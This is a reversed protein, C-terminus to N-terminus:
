PAQCGLRKANGLLDRLLWINVGGKGDKGDGQPKGCDTVDNMDADSCSRHFRSRVKTGDTYTVILDVDNTAGAAAFGDFVFTEGDVIPGTSGVLDAAGPSALNAVATRYWDVGAISKGGALASSFELGIGDIPKLADCSAAAVVPPAPTLVLDCGSEFSLSGSYSATSADARSEFEFVVEVGKGPDITRKKVDAVLDATTLAAPSAKKGKFVEDKGVKVKTLLGNVAQPWSLAVRTLTVKTTGRNTVKWKLQRDKLTIQGAEIACAAPGAPVCPVPTLANTGTKSPSNHSTVVEVSAFGGGAAFAAASITMEYEIPFIWGQLAPTSVNSGADAPPSNVLLNVGGVTCNGGTCRGNLNRALSTNWALLHGATGAVLGGDGGALGLSAYGSPTGSKASIYDMVFNMAISGNASRFLFQAKDSGVLDNFTHTRSWGVTNIGYSNDNFTTSQSWKVHVHGSGDVGWTLVGAPGFAAAASDSPCLARQHAYGFDITRDEGSLGSLVVTAPHHNSDVARDAGAMAATRGFGAPLTAEDVVVVYTGACLGTFLYRGSADTVAEALETDDGDKLVVRVGPVGPESPDQLGNLNQDYWVLDGIRGGCQPACFGFDASLDAATGTTTFIFPSMRSAGAAGTPTLGALVDQALPIEVTVGMSPTLNAFGYRGAQDTTVTAVVPGEPGGARLTVLVGGIGPEGADQIGDCNLDRWVVDGVVTAGRVGFDISDDHQNDSLVVTSGNANSDAARNTGTEVPSMTAGPPLDVWVTYTGPCLGEFRYRGTSDTVAMAADPAYQPQGDGFMLRVIVDRLGPEGADQVGDGDIDLWVFDGIGGTCPASYGFDITRNMRADGSLTVDSPNANSDRAADGGRAVPSAVLGAPLTTTDVEVRYVAACLGEFLYQGAGDTVQAAILRHEDDYLNVRVMGLGPEGADQIGDRNADLWVLDGIRGSCPAHYGFDVTRDSAVDTSLTVLSPSANADLGPNAGAGVPSPDFGPPLTSPDVEIRYTAACLGTFLYFGNPGTMMTALVARDATDLLRVTVGDIGAEGPDQVGNRNADFWVFDGIAGACPKHYGFDVTLDETADDALVVDFPNANSDIARDIGTGTPSPSLGPPLTSPDVEIRYSGACLGSFAYAGNFGTTTTAIIGHDFASRLNLRVNDLGLEGPDQLGDRNADQWVVDGIRGTCPQHYGFDITPDKAQDTALSVISPTDNGDVGRDSGVLAPSAVVGAPLTAPDVEVRYTGACLGTFAYYGNQGMARMATVATQIVVNFGDKLVLTVGDIGPEGPGQVGDRDLDNWVFDGIEGACPTNFGFDVTRNQEGDALPLDFPQENSDISRDPGVHVPTPAFGPPVTTSDVEVRYTGPCLGAFGYQGSAATVGTALTAGSQADRLLLRVGAIGPEGADQVGDRSTDNWVWDGISGTCPSEYGFDVTQDTSADTPLNVFAPSGNSDVAADGAGSPSPVFGSPVSAQDVEVTYDGSCLGEFQYYGQQGSPGPGTTATRVIASSADRLRVIVGNIGPEGPDQLGNRNDDHWVVDGIRGACVRRAPVPGVNGKALGSFSVAFSGSFTSNESTLSVGIDNSGYLPALAGGTVRFRLDFLDTSGAFNLFGFELVEGTLLVGSYDAVGDGTTDIDGTLILDDGAVGGALVGSSNVIAKISLTRSGTLARVGIPPGFNTASLTASVSFLGTAPTYSTSGPNTFGTSPVGPTIGLLAAFATGGALLTAAAARLSTRMLMPTPMPTPPSM